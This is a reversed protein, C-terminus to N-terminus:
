PQAGKKGVVKARASKKTPAGTQLAGTVVPETTPQKLDHFHMTPLMVPGTPMRSTLTLLQERIASWLLAAGNVTVLDHASGLKEAGKPLLIIGAAEIDIRYPSFKRDPEDASAQNDILLQLSVLYMPGREHAMDLEALGIETTISVGDFIFVTTMPNPPEAPAHAQDIEVYVRKFTLQLLHIPSPKM